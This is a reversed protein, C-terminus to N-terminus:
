AKLHSPLWLTLSPLAVLLAVRAMDAVFFPMVGRFVVSSPVNPLVGRLVFVNMGVPPTILSIETVCVVIIGFWVPDYGLHTVLPFFLPVTLLIMSLSELVMGLVVYILVIALMVLLPPLALGAVTDRLTAPMGTMNIFNAFVFAGILVAFMMATTRASEVLARRLLAPQFGNRVLAFVFAGGAGVGAAETSTFVGTYMGGIVVTFLVLVRWIRALAQWRQRWALRPARPGALPDRAVVWMVAAFYLTVAIVAPVIAAIFLVSVSQETMLAYLIMIVSPPILIGLTGGAAVSGASLTDSYGLKQMAPYAVKGMTAATALSSGCIAGFGACAAITSMALGGRRHGFFANAAAYLEESLRAQLVLNGMLVFLPIVTMTYAMGSEFAVSAVMSLAAGIHTKWAFGGFGVVLMALWMPLRMFALALFATFAMLGDLM